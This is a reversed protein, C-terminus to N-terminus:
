SEVIAGKDMVIIRDVDKVTSLRHAILVQTSELTKLYDTINKESVTDLASTAEDLILISSNQALARALIMRQRQGGSFNIGFESVMTYYNLPLKMIEEHVNARHAAVVAEELPMDEKALAINEYITKNFLRAEQFVVGMN